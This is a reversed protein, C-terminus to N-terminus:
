ESDVTDQPVSCVTDQWDRGNWYHLKLLSRFPEQNPHIDLPGLLIDAFEANVLSLDPALEFTRVAMLTSGGPLVTAGKRSDYFGAEVRLDGQWQRRHKWRIAAREWPSMFGNPPFNGMRAYTLAVGKPVTGAMAREPRLLSFRVGRRHWDMSLRMVVPESYKTIFNNTGSVYLRFVNGRRRAQVIGNLRGPHEMILIPEGRLTRVVLLTPYMSDHHPLAIVEPVGDGDLDTVTFSEIRGM